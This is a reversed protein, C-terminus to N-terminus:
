CGGRGVFGWWAEKVVGVDGGGVEMRADGLGEGLLRVLGSWSVGWEVGV